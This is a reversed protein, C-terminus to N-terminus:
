IVTTAFGKWSSRLSDNVDDPLESQRFYVRIKGMLVRYEENIMWSKRIKEIYPRIAKMRLTEHDGGYATRLSVSDPWPQFFRSKSAM